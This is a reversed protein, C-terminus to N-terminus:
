FWFYIFNLTAGLSKLATTKSNKTILISGASSVDDVCTTQQRYYATIYCMINYRYTRGNIIFYGFFNGYFKSNNSTNYWPGKNLWCSNTEEIEYKIQKNSSIIWSLGVRHFVTNLM